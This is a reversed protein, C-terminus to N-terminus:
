GPWSLASLLYTLAQHASGLLICNKISDTEYAWHWAQDHNCDGLVVRGARTNTCGFIAEDQWWPRLASGFWNEIYILLNKKNINLKTIHGLAATFKDTTPQLLKSVAQTSRARVTGALFGKKQDKRRFASLLRHDKAQKLLTVYLSGYGSMGFIHYVSGPLNRLLVLLM